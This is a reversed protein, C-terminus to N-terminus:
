MYSYMCTCTCVHVCVYMVYIKIQLKCVYLVLLYHLVENNLQWVCINVKSLTNDFYGAPNIALHHRHKVLLGYTQNLEESTLCDFVIRSMSTTM